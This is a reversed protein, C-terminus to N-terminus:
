IYYKRIFDVARKAATESDPYPLCEVTCWGDYGIKSLASFVRDFDLHGDGPAWRNSDALHIYKVYERNRILADAFDADEINMHFVDPMMVFNKRNVKKILETCQDLNNIYDIEYRNVPELILSVGKEEAYDSLKGAMELFLDECLKPDRGNIMGRVRGINVLGGFESALDIFGKFSCELEARKEKNEETFMLGRSAFVQGSSIASVEMNNKKLITRLEQHTIEDHNKLALEVGDYGLESARKISRELGRMVVFASPLANDSAIAVGLKM